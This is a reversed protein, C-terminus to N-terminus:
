SSLLSDEMPCSCGLWEKEPSETKNAWKWRASGALTFNGALHTDTFGGPWYATRDALGQVQAATELYSLTKGLQTRYSLNLDKGEYYRDSWRIDRYDNLARLNASWDGRLSLPISKLSLNVSVPSFEALINREASISVSNYILREEAQYDGAGHEGFGLTSGIIPRIRTTASATYNFEGALIHVNNTILYSEFETSLMGERSMFGKGSVRGDIIGKAAPKRSRMKIVIQGHAGPPLNSFTWTDFTGPDPSPDSMIFVTRPDYDEKVILDVPELGNNGYTITYTMLGGATASSPGDKIDERELPEFSILENGIKIYDILASTESANVDKYITIYIKVIRKGELRGKCDDLSELPFEDDRYKEYQLDFGDLENWTNNSMGAESCSKKQSLIRADQVNKSDYSDDGDGDFYLEVQVSGDGSQPYIWMSFQDLDELPLPPDLYIYIRAYNGESNITLEASNGGQFSQKTSVSADANKLKSLRYDLDTLCTSSLIGIQLFIIVILILTLSRNYHLLKSM